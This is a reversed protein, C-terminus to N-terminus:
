IPAFYQGEERRREKAEVKRPGEGEKRGKRHQSVGGEESSM